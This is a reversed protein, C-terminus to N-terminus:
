NCEEDPADEQDEFFLHDAAHHQKLPMKCRFCIADAHHELIAEVDLVSILEDDKNNQKAM